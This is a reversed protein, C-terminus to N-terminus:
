LIGKNNEMFTDIEKLNSINELNIDLKMRKNIGTLVKGAGVEIIKNVGYNKVKLISERWRVRCFVQKILLEKIKQSDDEFNASVNSVFKTPLKMFNTSEISNKLEISAQNMLSCHFPASVNLDIISRAGLDKLKLSAENVGSETGSIIIQGPCNDNAIECLDNKKFDISGLIEEVQDIELGIVASMKTNINKVSNQMATGRKRLLISADRLTISGISCLSSYEGLSHGLVIEVFDSIKKKLEFEIVRIIALSVAMLAPQTNSTLRLESESGSFIIKSLKQNLSEDVEDFVDRGVKHGKYLDQGMGLIQSGQGPFVLVLPKNM